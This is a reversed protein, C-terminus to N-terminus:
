RNKPWKLSNKARKLGKKSFPCYGVKGKACFEVKRGKKPKPPVAGYPLNKPRFHWFTGKKPAGSPFSCKSAKKLTKEANGLDRATIKAKKSPKQAKKISKPDNKATKSTM